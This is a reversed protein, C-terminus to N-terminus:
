LLFRTPPRFIDSHYAVPDGDSFSIAPQTLNSEPFRLMDSHDLIAFTWFPNHHHFPVPQHPKQHDDDGHADFLGDLNLLHDTVFDFLNMDPDEETKCQAYMDPLEQLAAFNGQLLINGSLYYLSLFFLGLNRLVKM